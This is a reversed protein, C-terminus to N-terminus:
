EAMGALFCFTSFFVIVPVRKKEKDLLGPVVFKWFQYFVVPLSLLLGVFVSLKVRVMFGGTPSLFILKQTAPVSSVVSADNFPKVLIKLVFESFFYVGISAVVVTVVVKILCWRLEELHDLFPMETSAPNKTM